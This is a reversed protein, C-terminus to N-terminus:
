GAPGAPTQDASHPIDVTSMETREEIRQQNEAVIEVEDLAFEELSINMSIDQTLEFTTQYSQFGTYSAVLEVEGQPLTLSFFGFNNTLTGQATRKDYVKASILKEGTRGDELFGSITHRQASASLSLFGCFTFHLICFRLLSQLALSKCKSSQPKVNQPEKYYTEM